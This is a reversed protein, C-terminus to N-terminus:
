DWGDYPRVLEDVVGDVVRGGRVVGDVMGDGRVMGGRVGGGRM